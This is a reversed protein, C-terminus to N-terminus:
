AGGVLAATGGLYAAGKVYDGNYIHGLGPLLFSLGAATRPRKDKPEVSAYARRAAARVMPSPDSHGAVELPKVFTPDGRQELALAAAARVHESQDRILLVVLQQGAKEDRIAGLDQAARAREAADPSAARAYPDVEQASATGCLLVACLLLRM